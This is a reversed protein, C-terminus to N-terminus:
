EIAFQLPQMAGFSNEHWGAVIAEGQPRCDQLAFYLQGGTRQWVAIRQGTAWEPFSKDGASFLNPAGHEHSLQRVGSQFQTELLHHDPRNVKTFVKVILPANRKRAEAERVQREFDDPLRFKLDRLQELLAALERHTAGRCSVILSLNGPFPRIESGNGGNESWEDPSVTTVILDILNDFDAGGFGEEVPSVLDAVYYTRATIALDADDQARQRGGWRYGSFYGATCSMLLLLTFLSFRFLWRLRGRPRTIGEM